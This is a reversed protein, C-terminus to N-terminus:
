HTSGLPLFARLFRSHPETGSEALVGTGENIEGYPKSVPQSYKEARKEIELRNFHKAAMGTVFNYMCSIYLHKGEQWGKFKRDLKAELANQWSTFDTYKKVDDSVWAELEEKTMRKYQQPAVGGGNDTDNDTTNKEPEETFPKEDTSTLEADADKKGTGNFYADKVETLSYFRNRYSLLKGWQKETFWDSKGNADTFTAVIGNCVDPYLSKDSLSYLYDLKTELRNFTSTVYNNREEIEAKTLKEAHSTGTVENSSDIGTGAVSVTDVESKGNSFYRPDFVYQKVPPQIYGEGADERGSVEDKEKTDTLISEKKVETDPGMCHYEKITGSEIYNSREVEMDMDMDMSSKLKKELSEVRENLARNAESLENIKLSMENIKLLLEEMKQNTETSYVSSNTKFHIKEMIEGSLFYRNEVGKVGKSRKKGREVTILGANVLEVVANTMTASGIECEKRMEANSVHAYGDEKTIDRGYLKRIYGLVLKAYLTIDADVKLANALALLGEQNESLTKETLKKRPM